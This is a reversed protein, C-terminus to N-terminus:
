PVTRALYLRSPARYKLPELLVGNVISFMASTAGLGLALTLVAVMTFVPSRRLTRLVHRLDLILQNFWAWGWQARTLEKTLLVNGFERRVQARAESTTEGRETRDREAMRLHAQIEENLEDERRAWKHWWQWLSM